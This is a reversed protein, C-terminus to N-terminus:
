AGGGRCRTSWAAQDEDDLIQMPDVAFALDHEVRDDLPQAGRAQQEDDGIPGFVLMAPDAPAVVRLDADIREFGFGGVGEQAMMEAVALMERRQALPQDLPGLARREEELLDDAGEDIGAHQDALRDMKAQRLGGVLDLDRAGDLGHEGGADVPQRGLMAGQQLDGRDDALVHRQGQEFGDGLGGILIQAAPQGLQLAELEEVLDVQRGAGFVGELVRQGVGDGILPHQQPMAAGQMRADGLRDLLMVGVPEVLEGLAEGVVRQLALEPRAGDLIVLLGAM